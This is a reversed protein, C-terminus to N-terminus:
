IKRHDVYPHLWKGKLLYLEYYLYWEHTWPIITNFLHSRDTFSYDHPYYLCLTNDQAYMHIEDNYAIKPIMPYVKPNSGPTFKVKYEYKVSFESPQCTGKVSLAGDSIKVELFNYAKELLHKELRIRQMPNEGKPPIFSRAAM